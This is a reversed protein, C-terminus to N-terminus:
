KVKILFLCDESGDEFHTQEIVCVRKTDNDILKSFLENSEEKNLEFGWKKFIEKTLVKPEKQKNTKM